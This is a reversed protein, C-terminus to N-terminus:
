QAIEETEEEYANLIAYDMGADKIEEIAKKMDFGENDPDFEGLFWKKTFPYVSFKTKKAYAKVSKYESMLRESNKQISIYMEMFEFDMGKYSRKPKRTKKKQEKIELKFTPHANMKMALEEYYPSIGKGAKNYSTKTGSITGDFFNIIFYAKATTKNGKTTKTM